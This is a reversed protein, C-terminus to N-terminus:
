LRVGGRLVMPPIRNVGNVGLAKKFMSKSGSRSLPKRKM